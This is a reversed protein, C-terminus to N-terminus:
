LEITSWFVPLAVTSLVYYFGQISVHQMRDKSPPGSTLEPDTSVPTPPDPAVGLASSLGQGAKEDTDRSGVGGHTKTEYKIRCLM